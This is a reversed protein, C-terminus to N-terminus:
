LEYLEIPEDSRAEIQFPIADWRAAVPRISISEIVINFIGKRRFAPSQVAISDCLGRWKVLEDIQQHADAQANLRSKLAIGRISIRWDGLAFLEKVTGSGGQVATTIPDNEAQLNVTSSFPLTFEAMSRKVVAGSRRDYANYEGAEFTVPAMVPLGFESYVLDDNGDAEQDIFAIDHFKGEELPVNNGYPLYIPSNIGFIQRVADLVFLAKNREEETMIM